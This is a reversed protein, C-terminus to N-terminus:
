LGFDTQGLFREFFFPEKSNKWHCVISTFFRFGAIFRRINFPIPAAQAGASGFIGMEDDRATIARESQRDTEQEACVKTFLNFNCLPSLFFFIHISPFTFNFLAGSLVSRTSEKWSNASAGKACLQSTSCSHLSGLSAGLYNGFSCFTTLQGCWSLKM